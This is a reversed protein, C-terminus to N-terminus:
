RGNEITELAAADMAAVDYAVDYYSSYDNYYYAGNGKDILNILIGALKSHTTTLIEVARAVSTRTSRGIAAVLITADVRAAISQADTIGVIPPTDILVYDYAQRWAQLLAEMKHSELLAVPNPPLPGSTLIHLYGGVGGAQVLQAWPRHTAIATSLGVTNRQQSLQHLTPKRMDGDVLLVRHGLEALVVGLNYVMTSKGDSPMASTFAITKVSRDSGLYRLNLALSRMAERFAFLTRSPSLAASGGHPVLRLTDTRPITALLPLDTLEKVEEIEKIRGDARELLLAAGMGLLLGIAAGLLYNRSPRPYIPVAPLFPPDLIRWPSIEQAEAIRLDELKESLRNYLSSNLGLQRQLETYSLQLQPIQAFAALVERRARRASDVQASQVALLTQTEFLQTALNQKIASGGETPVGVIRASAGLITEAQVQMLGYLRDRRDKLAQVTPHSEQFRTRELFYNTETEQFQRVLSQYTTDQALIAKGLAVDASRGIQREVEQLRRETQAMQIEIAQLEEELRQKMGYVSAAYTDPDTINYQKRFQAVAQASRDLQQKLRPLKTEIFRIANSSQSRQSTLSYEAYTKALSALIAQARRPDPDRYSLRLVRAGKEQSISLNAVVHGAFGPPLPKGTADKVNALATELLPRSTLIAIETALNIERPVSDGATRVEAVPVTANDILLSASSQYLPTRTHTYVISGTLCTSAIAAVIPWRKRLIRFLRALTLTGDLQSSYNVYYEAM